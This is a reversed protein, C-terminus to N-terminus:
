ALFHLKITGGFVELNLHRIVFRPSVKLVPAMYNHAVTAGWSSSSHGMYHPSELKCYHLYIVKNLKGCYINATVRDSISIGKLCHCYVGFLFCRSHLMGVIPSIFSFILFHVRIFRLTLSVLFAM